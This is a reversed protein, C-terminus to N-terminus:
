GSDKYYSGPYRVAFRYQGKSASSDNPHYCDSPGSHTAHQVTSGAASDV